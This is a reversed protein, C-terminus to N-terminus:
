QQQTQTTILPLSCLKNRKKRNDDHRWQYSWLEGLKDRIKKASKLTIKMIRHPQYRGMRFPHFSLFNQAIRHPLCKPRASLQRQYMLQSSHYDPPSLFFPFKGLKWAFLSLMKQAIQFNLNTQQKHTSLLFLFNEPNPRRLLLSFFLFKFISFRAPGGWTCSRSRGEDCKWVSRPLLSFLKSYFKSMRVVQGDGTFVHIHHHYYSCCSFSKWARAQM